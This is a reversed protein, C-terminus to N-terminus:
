HMCASSGVVEMQASGYTAFHKRTRLVTQGVRPPRAKLTRHCPTLRWSAAGAMEEAEEEQLGAPDDGPQGQQTEEPTPGPGSSRYGCDGFKWVRRLRQGSPWDLPARFRTGPSPPGGAAARHQVGQTRSRHSRGRASAGAGRDPAPDPRRVGLSLRPLVGAGSSLTLQLQLALHCKQVKYAPKIEPKQLTNGVPTPISGAPCAGPTRRAHTGWPRARGTRISRTGWLRPPPGHSQGSM